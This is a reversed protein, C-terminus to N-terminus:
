NSIRERNKPITGCEPCRDPTARLDYGCARCHGERSRKRARSRETVSRLRTIPIISTAVALLWFPIVFRWVEPGLWRSGHYYGVGWRGWESTDKHTALPNWTDSYPKDRAAALYLNGEVWAFGLGPRAYPITDIPHAYSLIWLAVMGVCLVLSVGALLNFLRRKVLAIKSDRTGARM